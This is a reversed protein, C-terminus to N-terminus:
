TLLTPINMDLKHLLSSSVHLIGLSTVLCIGASKTSSDLKPCPWLEEHLRGSSWTVNSRSAPDPYRACFAAEMVSMHTPASEQSLHVSLKSNQMPLFRCISNGLVMPPALFRYTLILTAPKLSKLADPIKM